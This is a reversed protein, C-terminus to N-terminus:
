EESQGNTKLHFIMNDLLIDYDMFDLRTNSGFNSDSGLIIFGFLCIELPM